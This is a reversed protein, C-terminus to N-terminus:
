FNLLYYHRRLWIIMDEYQDEEPVITGYIATNGFHQNVASLGPLISIVEGSAKITTNVNLLPAEIMIATSTGTHARTGSIVMQRRDM